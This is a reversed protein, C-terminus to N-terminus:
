QPKSVEHCDLKSIFIKDLYELNQRIKLKNELEVKFDDLAKSSIDTIKNIHKWAINLKGEAFSKEALVIEMDNGGNSVARDGIPRIFIMKKLYSYLANDTDKKRIYLDKILSNFKIRFYDDGMNANVLESLDAFHKNVDESKIKYKNLQELENSFDKNQEIKLKMNYYYQIFSLLESCSSVKQIDNMAPPDESTVNKKSHDSNQTSEVKTESAINHEQDSIGKIKYTFVFNMSLLVLFAIAIFSAIGLFFYKANSKKKDEKNDSPDKSM